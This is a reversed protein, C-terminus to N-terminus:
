QPSDQELEQQGKVKRMSEGMLEIKHANNVLRDLIADALTPDETTSYWKLTCQSTATSSRIPPKIDVSFNADGINDIGGGAGLGTVQHRSTKGLRHLLENPDWLANPYIDVIKWGREKAHKALVDILATKGAGPAGQIMFTTGDKLDKSDYLVSNFNDIIEKRGHFFPSPGRDRPRIPPRNSDTSKAKM